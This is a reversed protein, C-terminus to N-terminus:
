GGKTEACSESATHTTTVYQLLAVGGVMKIHQLKEALHQVGNKVQALLKCSQEARM